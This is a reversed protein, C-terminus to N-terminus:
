ETESATRPFTVRFWAVVDNWRTRLVSLGVMSAIVIVAALACQPATLKEHLYYSWRGYVMETHVWYVLLSTTGLQRIWSWGNAALQSTWLYAFALLLFVLGTKILILAPSNLWFESSVYLSYPLNSFYQAGFVLAFGLLAFWQMLRGLDKGPAMKLLSGTSIGFALFAGWPFFSFYNPNPALYDKLLSPVGQWNLMSIMPSLGAVFLGLGASWRMRTATDVLALPAFILMAFGMANLIDVKLLDKWSNNPLGFLFLQLRFLFAILFLYRARYLAQVIRKGFPVGKREMSAMLFAYTVGTLFLFIAPPMGGIFQSLVYPSDNRNAPMTYAHFVHGQLMIAAAIGRSWDLFTLRETAPTSM